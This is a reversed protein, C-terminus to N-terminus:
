TITLPPDFKRRLHTAIEEDTYGKGRLDLVWPRLTKTREPDEAGASGADAPRPSTASKETLTLLLRDRGPAVIGSKAAVIGAKGAVNASNPITADPQSMGPGNAAVNAPNDRRSAVNSDPITASLHSMPIAPFYHGGLRGFQRKRREFELWGLHHLRLLRRAATSHHVGLRLAISLREGVAEAAGGPIARP